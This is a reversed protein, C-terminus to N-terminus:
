KGMESEGTTALYGCWFLHERLARRVRSVEWALCGHEMHRRAEADERRTFHVTKAFRAIQGGCPRGRLRTGPRAMQRSRSTCMTGRQIVCSIAASRPRALANGYVQEYRCRLTRIRKEVEYSARQIGGASGSSGRPTNLTVTEHTRSRRVMNVLKKM